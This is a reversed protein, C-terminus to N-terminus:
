SYNRRKKLMSSLIFSKFSYNRCCNFCSHDTLMWFEDDTGTWPCKSVTQAQIEGRRTAELARQYKATM